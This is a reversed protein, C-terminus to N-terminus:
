VIVPIPDRLYVAFVKGGIVASFITGADNGNVKSENAQISRLVHVMQAYNVDSDDGDGTSAYFYKGQCGCMCGPKGKYGKVVDGPNISQIDFKSAMVLQRGGYGFWEGPM